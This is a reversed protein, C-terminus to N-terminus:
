SPIFLWASTSSILFASGDDRQIVDSAGSTGDLEHYLSLNSLYITLQEGTLVSLYRGSASISLVQTDLDTKGLVTGDNTYVTLTAENGSQYTGTLVACFGDRSLAFTKLYRTSWDTQSLAKGESSLVTLASEQMVWLRQNEWMMKLVVDNGLSYTVSPTLETQADSFDKLKYLYVSSDYSTNQQGMTAAAITSCDDSLVADTIYISSIRCAAHKKYSSDYITIVAKYGTEHTVVTLWGAKNITASILTGDINNLAFAQTRNHYVYLDKGGADYVVVANEAADILPNGLTKTDSVYETGSQSYLHVGSTCTTLFDNGISTFLSSSNGEYTFPSAEGTDSRELSRYSFYRAIADLNLTDRHFILVLAGLLLVVTFLFAFIRVFINPKKKPKTKKTDM